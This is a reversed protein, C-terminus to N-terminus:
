DRFEIMVLEWDRVYKTAITLRGGKELVDLANQILHIFVYQLRGPNTVLPPIGQELKKKIIVSKRSFNCNMFTLTEEILTNIDTNVTRASNRDLYTLLGKLVANTQGLSERAEQIQLSTEEPSLGNRIKLILEETKKIRSSLSFETEHLIGASIKGATALQTSRYLQEKMKLFLREIYNKEAERQKVEEGLYGSLLSVIFLFPFRLLQHTRFLEERGTNKYAIGFYLLCVTVGSLLSTKFNKSLASMFIVIFYVLYLDTDMGRTFYILLSILISDLTFTGAPVGASHFYKEPVSHLFINFLLFFGLISHLRASLSQSQLLADSSYVVFLLSVLFMLWQIILFLHRTRLSVSKKLVSAM